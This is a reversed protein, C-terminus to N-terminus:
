RVKEDMIAYKYITTGPPLAQHLKVCDEPTINPFQMFPDKFVWGLQMLNQSFQLLGMINQCTLRKHTQRQKYEAILKISEEIIIDLYSPIRRLIVELDAALNDKHIKNEPKIMGCMYAM